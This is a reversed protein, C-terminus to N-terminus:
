EISRNTKLQTESRQKGQSGCSNTHRLLIQSVHKYDAARATCPPARLLPKPVATMTHEAFLCGCVLLQKETLPSYIKMVGLSNRFSFRFGRMGSESTQRAAVCTHKSEHQVSDLSWFASNKRPTYLTKQKNQNPKPTHKKEQVKHM